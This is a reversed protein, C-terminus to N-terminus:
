FVGDQSQLFFLGYRVGSVLPTVGHPITHDHITASGAPRLPEQLGSQTAYVLRGGVYEDDGNLAVQMTRRNHDTHFDIRAGSSATVRRIKIQDFPEGFLSALHTMTENGLVEQLDEVTLDLKFDFSQDLGGSSEAHAGDARSILARRSALDLRCETPQLMKFPTPEGTCGLSSAIAVPDTMMEGGAVFTGVDTLPIKKYSLMEIVYQEREAQLAKLESALLLVKEADAGGGAVLDQIEKGAVLDQIEKEKADIASHKQHLIQRKKDLELMKLAAQGKLRQRQFYKQDLYQEELYQEEASLTSDIRLKVYYAVACVLTLSFVVLKGM